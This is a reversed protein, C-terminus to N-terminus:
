SLDKIMIYEDAYTGDLYKLANPLTGIVEFGFNQYMKLARTNTTVVTLELQSIKKDICWTICQEMMKVGIGMNCYKDLLLFAVEARHRYRQNERVLGVSCQGVIKGDLKATFWTSTTSKLVNEIISQEKEITPHFEGPNRALFLTEEDAASIVKIIEQADELKPKRIDLKKGNKLTYEM